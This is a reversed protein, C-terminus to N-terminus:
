EWGGGGRPLSASLPTLAFGLALWAGPGRWPLCPWPRSSTSFAPKRPEVPRLEAELLSPSPFDLSLRMLNLEVIWKIYEFCLYQNRLQQVGPLLVTSPICHHGFSGYHAIM